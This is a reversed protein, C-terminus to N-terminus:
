YGDLLQPTNKDNEQPLPSYEELLSAFRRKFTPHSRLLELSPDDRAWEILQGKRPDRALRFSKRLLTIALRLGDDAPATSPKRAQARGVTYCALNYYVRYSLTRESAAQRIPEVLGEADQTQGSHLLTAAILLDTCPLVTHELLRFIREERPTLDELWPRWWRLRAKRSEYKALADKILIRLESAIESGEAMLLAARQGDGESGTEHLRLAENVKTRAIQYLLRFYNPEELFWKIQSVSNSV